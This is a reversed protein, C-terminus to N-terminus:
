VVNPSFDEGTLQHLEEALVVSLQRGDKLTWDAGEGMANFHLGVASQRPFGYNSAPRMNASLWCRKLCGHPYEYHRKGLEIDLRAEVDESELLEFLAELWTDAASHFSSEDTFTM